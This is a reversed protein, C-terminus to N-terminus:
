RVMDFKGAEAYDDLLNLPDGIRDHIYRNSSGVASSRPDFRLAAAARSLSRGM